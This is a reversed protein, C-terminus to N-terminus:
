QHRELKRWSGDLEVNPNFNRSETVVYEGKSNVWANNYGSPLEVARRSSPDYYEDVGRMYQSWNKNIRDQSAQRNEYSQRMMDSIESSTRSIIKSLEGAARIRQMEKQTLAQCLQAYKCYWQLNLRTSNVITQFVKTQQDLRGKEARMGVLKDAIQITMNGGPLAVSNLVCYLDEEVPRGQVNYEIRIKGATYRQMATAGEAQAVAKALEPLAQASVVKAGANGRVRGLHREKLYALADRAPPQVENGLYNAGVPFLTGPGLHSGYSYGMTPFTELQDLGKPNRVRAAVAAPIVPHVRWVLGGEVQWNVPALFSVAEGGIMDNRDMLSVKKFRLVEAGVGCAFCLGVLVVLVSFCIRRKM